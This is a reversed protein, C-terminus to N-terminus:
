ILGILTWYPLAVAFSIAMYILATILSLRWWTAQDVYGAAFLIPSLTGSYHTVMGGYASVYAVLFLCPITPVNAVLGITYVIPLVSAAFVVGSAFFYRSGIIILILISIVLYSNVGSLNVHAGIFQGLWDFFKEKTLTNIVGVIGGYWMFMTWAGRSGLVDEWSIVKFLLLSAVFAVAVANADIKFFGGIAWGLIALCFLAALVKEERKIPGLAALGKAAFDKNEITKLEPPYMLYTTLPVVLLMALGPVASVIFFHIWDVHPVKLVKEGISLILPMTAIATMFVCSTAWSAFYTTM